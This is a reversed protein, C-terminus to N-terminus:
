SQTMVPSSLPRSVGFASSAKAYRQKSRFATLSTRLKDPSCMWHGFHGNEPNIRSVGTLQFCAWCDAPALCSRHPSFLEFTRDVVPTSIVPGLWLTVPRLIQYWSGVDSQCHWAVLPPLISIFEKGSPPQN